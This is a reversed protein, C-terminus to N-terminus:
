LEGVADSHLDHQVKQQYYHDITSPANFLAALLYAKINVIRTTTEKMCDIIYWVHSSTLELFKSRVYEYPYAVGGVKIMKRKVCVVECIIDFLEKLLAKDNCKDNTMYFEYDLNKKIQEIYTTNKDIEEKTGDFEDKQSSLNSQYSQNIYNYSQNNYNNNNYNPALNKVELPLHEKGGSTLNKSNCFNLKKVEPLESEKGRPSINGKNVSYAGLNTTNEEHFGNKREAVSTRSQNWFNLKKVEPLENEKSEATMSNEQPDSLYPDEPFFQGEAFYEQDEGIEGDNNSSKNEVSGCKQEEHGAETEVSKNEEQIVFNKVYIIDPKGLGKREREILGFTSLEKMIKVCTPKSCNLDEMVNDISYIIYARNENDLWHNKMSLAMRDLMLGYLLKADSSLGKFHQDKILLRPIRYFSFQESQVGYYYDFKLGEEM